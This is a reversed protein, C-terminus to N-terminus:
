YPTPWGSHSGRHRRSAWTLRPTGHPNAGPGDLRRATSYFRSTATAHMVSRAAEDNSGHRRGAVRLLCEPAEPGPAPTPHPDATLQGRGRLSADRDVRSRIRVRRDLLRAGQVPCLSAHPGVLLTISAEPWPPSTLGASHEDLERACSPCCAERRNGCRVMLAGDPEDATSYVPEDGHLVVGRLRM